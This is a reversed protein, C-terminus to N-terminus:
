AIRSAAKFTYHQEVDVRVLSSAPVAWLNGDVWRPYSELAKEVAEEPTQVHAVRIHSRGFDVGVGPLPTEEHIVVWDNM